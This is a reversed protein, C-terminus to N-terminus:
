TSLKGIKISETYSEYLNDVISNWFFSYFEQTLGDNGPSKNKACKELTLKLENKTLPADLHLNEEESLQPVLGEQKLNKIWNGTHCRTDTQYLKEYFGQLHQMIKKQDTVEHEDDM